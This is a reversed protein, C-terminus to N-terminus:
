FGRQLTEVIFIISSGFFIFLVSVLLLSCLLFLIWPMVKLRSSIMKFYTTFPGLEQPPIEIVQQWRTIINEYTKDKMNMLETATIVQKM